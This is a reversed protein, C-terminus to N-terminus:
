REEQTIYQTKDAVYYVQIIIDYDNIFMLLPKQPKQSLYIHNTVPWNV